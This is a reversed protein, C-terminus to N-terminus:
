KNRYLTEMSGTAEIELYLGVSTLTRSTINGTMDSLYLTYTPDDAESKAEIAYEFWSGWSQANYNWDRPQASQQLAATSGVSVNFSGHPTTATNDSFPYLTASYMKVTLPYFAAPLDKSVHFTLKYTKRSKGDVTRSTGNDVLTSAPVTFESISYVDVYRSLGSNKAVIQLANFKLTTNVTNLKFTVTGKGTSANYTVAPAVNVDEVVNPREDTDDKGEWSVAFNSADLGSTSGSGHATYTFNVTANGNADAVRFLETVNEVTLTFEDNNVTNVERAVQAYPNNSYNETALAAAFSDSGMSTSENASPLNVISINFNQNRVVRYPVKDNDQLLLTHYRTSGNAYTAKIIIKVPVTSNSNEFLFQVRDKEDAAAPDAWIADSETMTDYVGSSRYETLVTASAYGNGYPHNSDTSSTAATFGRKLGNSITWKLVTIDPDSNTLTVKARDRLLHLTNGGILWSSMASATEETHYGWFRVHDTIGSSLAESKMMVKELAGISFGSLDLDTFNAVFHIRATNSPVTGRLTGTFDGSPTLVGDRSTIYAGQYDFCLMKISSIADETGNVYSARTEADAMRGDVSLVVAMEGDPVVLEEAVNLKSNCGAVILLSALITFYKKM